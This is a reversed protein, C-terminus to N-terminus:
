LLGNKRHTLRIRERVLAASFLLIGDGVIQNQSLGEHVFGSEALVAIVPIM